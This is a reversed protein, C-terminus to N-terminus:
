GEQYPTDLIEITYGIANEIDESRLDYEDCIEHPDMGDKLCALILSVPIRTDEIVPMGNMKQTDVQIRNSTKSIKAFYQKIKQVPHGNHDSGIYNIMDNHYTGHYLDSKHSEHGTYIYKKAEWPFEIKDSRITPSVIKKM